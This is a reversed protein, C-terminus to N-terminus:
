LFSNGVLVAGFLVLVVCTITRSSRELAARLRNLRLRIREGGIAIAVVPISVTVVGIAAFLAVAVITPPPETLSYGIM